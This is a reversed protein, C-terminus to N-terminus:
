YNLMYNSPSLYNLRRKIRKSVFWCLYSDLKKIFEKCTCHKWDNPYYFENKIIGFLGECMSNDPSCGKKSM